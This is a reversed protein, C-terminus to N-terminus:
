STRVHVVDGAAVPTGDVVLRGDDDVGTARGGGGAAPCSSGCRAASRRAPPGTPPWSPRPPSAAAPRWPSAPLRGAADPRDVGTRRRGGRGTVDCGAAAARRGLGRQPGPGVVVGGDSRRPWSGPWSAGARSWWTTPGSSRRRARRGGVPLRRGRGPRRGGGGPPRAPPRLLVSVLLSSGAPAEWTRGRRGRGATQHTPWWWWARPLGPGPGPRWRTTPRASRPWGRSTASDPTPSRREPAPTWCAQVMPAREHEPFDEDGVPGLDRHPDDAGALLQADGRDRHVGVEVPPREVDAQGVLGVGQAPDGRGLAVEVGVGDEVGDGAAAGVGDVGAVAEEGLVGVEGPAM